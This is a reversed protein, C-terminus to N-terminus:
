SGNTSCTNIIIIIIIICGTHTLMHVTHSHSSILMSESNFEVLMCDQTLHIINNNYLIIALTIGSYSYTIMVQDNDHMVVTIAPLNAIIIVIFHIPYYYNNNNHQNKLISQKESLLRSSYSLVSTCM